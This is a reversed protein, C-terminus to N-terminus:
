TIWGWPWRTACRTAAERTSKDLATELKKGDNTFEQDLYTDDNFNFIFVEDQPNSAKM